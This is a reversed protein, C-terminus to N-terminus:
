RSWRSILRRVRWWWRQMPWILVLLLVQVRQLPTLRDRVTRRNSHPRM